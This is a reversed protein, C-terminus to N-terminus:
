TSCIDGQVPVESTLGIRRGSEKKYHLFLMETELFRPKAEWPSYAAQQATRPGDGGPANRHAGSEAEKM